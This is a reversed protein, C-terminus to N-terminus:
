VRILFFNNRLLFIIGEFVYLEIKYGGGGVVGGESAFRKVFYISGNAKMVRRACHTM